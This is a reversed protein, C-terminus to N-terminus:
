SVPDQYNTLMKLLYLVEDTDANQLYSKDDAMYKQFNPDYLLALAFM